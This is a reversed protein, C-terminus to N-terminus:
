EEQKNELAGLADLLASLHERLQHIHPNARTKRLLVYLRDQEETVAQKRRLATIRPFFYDPEIPFFHCLAEVAIISPKQLVGTRLKSLYSGDILKKGAAKTIGEEVEKHTYERGEPHRYVRFLENVLKATSPFKPSDM